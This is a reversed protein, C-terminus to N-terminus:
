HRTPESIHILSLAKGGVFTEISFGTGRLVRVVEEVAHSTLYNEYITKMTALETVHAGNSTVIYELGEISFLQKPLSQFTRGTSVVIHVGSEMAKRFATMTRASIEKQNNLTTGDLDLAVMRIKKDKM